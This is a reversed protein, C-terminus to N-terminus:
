RIVLLSPFYSALPPPFSVSEIEFGASHWIVRLTRKQEEKERGGEKEEKEGDFRAIEKRELTERGLVEKPQKKKTM